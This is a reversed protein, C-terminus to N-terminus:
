NRFVTRKGVVDEDRFLLQFSSFGTVLCDHFYGFPGVFCLIRDSLHDVDEPYCSVICCFHVGDESLEAQGVYIRFRYFCCSILDGCFNSRFLYGSAFVETLYRSEGDVRFVGLVEVVCKRDAGDFVSQPFYAYMDGIHSVIYFFAADDVFFCLLPRSGNIQYVTGDRHKGFAQTVEDTGQTRIFLFECEGDDEVDGLFSFYSVGADYMGDDVGVTAESVFLRM